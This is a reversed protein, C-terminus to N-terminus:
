CHPENPLEDDVWPSLAFVKSNDDSRNEETVGLVNTLGILQAEFIYKLTEWRQGCKSSVSQDRDHNNKAQVIVITEQM